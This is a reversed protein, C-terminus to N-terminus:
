IKFNYGIRAQARLDDIPGQGKSTFVSSAGAFIIIECLSIANQAM